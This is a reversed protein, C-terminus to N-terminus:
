TYKVINKFQLIGQSNDGKQVSPPKIETQHKLNNECNLIYGKLSLVNILIVGFHMKRKLLKLSAM